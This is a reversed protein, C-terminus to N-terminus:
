QSRFRFFAKQEQASRPVLLTQLDGVRDTPLHVPTWSTGADLSASTEIGLNLISAPWELQNGGGPVHRIRLTPRFTGTDFSAPASFESTNGNSDTATATLHRAQSLVVPVIADFAARGEPGTNVAIAGAWAQGEVHGPLLPELSCYFDVTYVADPKSDLTGTVHLLGNQAIAISLDPHNQLGNGGSDADGPDNADVGGRGAGDMLDIGQGRNDHISNGRLPNGHQDAAATGVSVGCEGSFCIENSEGPNTGGVRHGGDGTLRVGAKRNGLPRVGEPDTGIVNGQIVNDSGGQVNVGDSNNGILNGAGPAAGGVICRESGQLHIGHSSNGLSFRGAIDTGIRNGQIVTDDAGLVLVGSGTPSNASIVNRAGPEPGGIRNRPAGQILIGDFTNGRPLTGTTDTGIYNGLVQNDSSGTPFFFVGRGNSSIVNRESPELGGITNGTSDPRSMSQVFVGNGRNGAPLGDVDLGILNGTVRSFSCSELLIGDYFNVIVLGRVTHPGGRLALGPSIGNTMRAGDLRIRLTGDWGQALANMRSGPQSYGDLILPDVIPPLPTLPELTHVGSGPLDFLIQDQGPSANALTLAERLSGPGDDGNQTVYLTATHAIAGTFIWAIGCAL